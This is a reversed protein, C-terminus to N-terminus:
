SVAPPPIGDMAPRLSSHKGNTRKSIPSRCGTPRFAMRKERCFAKLTYTRRLDWLNSAFGESKLLMGKPMLQSWSQMPRGFLEYGLGRHRMHAALSLGYPGAGIIATEYHSM